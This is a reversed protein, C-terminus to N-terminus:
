PCLLWSGVFQVDSFAATGCVDQSCGGDRHEGCGGSVYCWGPTQEDNCLGAAVASQQSLACLTQVLPENAAQLAANLGAEDAATAATLGAQACGGTVDGLLVRCQAMGSSTPLPEPLCLDNELELGAFRGADGDPAANTGTGASDGDRAACGLPGLSLLGAIVLLTKM